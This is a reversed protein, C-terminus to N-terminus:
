MIPSPVHKTKEDIRKSGDVGDNDSSFYFRCYGLRDSLGKPRVQVVIDKVYEIYKKKRKSEAFIM